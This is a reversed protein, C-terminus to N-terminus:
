TKVDGSPKSKGPVQGQGSLELIKNTIAYFEVPAVTALKVAAELPIRPNVSATVCQELRKAVEGHVDSGIGLMKKIGATIDNRNEAALAEVIAEVKRNRDGAENCRAIEDATLGRVRWVAEAGEPFYDRLAPVPVDGERPSYEQRMFAKLDFTNETKEITM